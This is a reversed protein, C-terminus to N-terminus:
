AWHSAIVADNAEPISRTSADGKDPATREDLPNSQNPSEFLPEDTPTRDTEEDTESSGGSRLSTDVGIQTGFLGSGSLVDSIRPDPLFDFTLRETKQEGALDFLMAMPLTPAPAVSAPGANLNAMALDFMAASPDFVVIEVLSVVAAGPGDGTIETARVALVITTPTFDQPVSWTLRGTTPDIAAGEPAGSELSYFITNAPSDPDVAQVILELTDGQKVIQQGIPAFVPQSDIENVTIAFSQEDTAGTADAVRVTIPYANGGQSENPTFTIRGTAPDIAAGAPAGAALSFTLENAPLDLDTAIVFFDLLEGEDITVDSIPDLLPAQNIENVTVDFAQTVAVDAENTVRVTISYTGPGQAETPTWSFQGTTADIAAGSPVDGDLDFTLTDSDGDAIATVTVTSGEAVERDAIPDLQPPTDLAVTFAQGTTNGAADAVRVVIPQGPAQDAQPTWTIQGTANNILMGAPSTTLSYTV